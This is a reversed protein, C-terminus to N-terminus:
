QACFAQAGDATVVIRAAERLDAASRAGAPAERDPEAGGLLVCRCGANRALEADSERDGIVWSRELDAGLESAARELLGPAPKRCACGAGPLHPCHYVAEFRVGAAAFDRRLHETFARFEGEGYLGRAIGSQNTVIALAFGADALARLGEAAGPLREYDEIRHVYGRDRVLTGDRDVFAFRRGTM